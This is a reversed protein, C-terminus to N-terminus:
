GPSPSGRRVLWAQTLDRILYISIAVLLFIFVSDAAKLLYSVTILGAAAADPLGPRSLHGAPPPFEQPALISRSLAWLVLGLVLIVWSTTFDALHLNM